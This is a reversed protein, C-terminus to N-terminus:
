TTEEGRGAHPSHLLGKPFISLHLTANEAHTSRRQSGVRVLKHVDTCDFKIM